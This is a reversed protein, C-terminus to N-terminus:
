MMFLLLTILYGDARDGKAPYNLIDPPIIYDPFAAKNDQWAIFEEVEARTVRSCSTTNPVRKKMLLLQEM